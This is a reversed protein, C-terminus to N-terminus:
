KYLKKFMEMGGFDTIIDPFSKNLEKLHFEYLEINKNNIREIFKPTKRKILILSIIFLIFAVGFIFIVASESVRRGYSTFEHSWDTIIIKSVFLFGLIFMGIFAIFLPYLIKAIYSYIKSSFIKINRKRKSIEFLLINLKYNRVGGIDTNAIQNSMMFPYQSFNEYFEKPRNVTEVIAWIWAIFWFFGFTVLTLICSVWFKFKDRRYTYLWTWFGLIVALIVATSKEKEPLFVNDPNNVAMSNWKLM